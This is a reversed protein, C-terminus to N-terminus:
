GNLRGPAASRNVLIGRSFFFSVRSIAKQIEEEYEERVAEEIAERDVSDCASEKIAEQILEEFDERVDAEIQDKDPQTINM